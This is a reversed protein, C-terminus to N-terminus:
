HCNTMQCEKSREYEIYFRSTGFIYEQTLSDYVESNKLKYAYNLAFQKYAFSTAIPIGNAVGSVKYRTKKNFKTSM